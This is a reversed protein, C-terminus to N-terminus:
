PLTISTTVVTTTGGADILTTPSTLEFKNAATKQYSVPQGFANYLDTCSLPINSFMFTGQCASAGSNVAGWVSTVQSALTVATAATPLLTTVAYNTAIKAATMKQGIHASSLRSNARLQMDTVFALDSKLPCWAAGTDFDKAGTTPPCQNKTTSLYAGVSETTDKPTFVALRNFRWLNGTIQPSLYLSVTDRTSSAFGGNAKSLYPKLVSYGPTTALIQLSSPFIGKENFYQEVHSVVVAQIATQNALRNNNKSLTSTGVVSALCAVLLFFASVLLLPM